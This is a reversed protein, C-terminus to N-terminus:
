QRYPNHEKQVKSVLYRLKDLNNLLAHVKLLYNTGFTTATEIMTKLKNMIEKLVREPSLSLHKHIGK